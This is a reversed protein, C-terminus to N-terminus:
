DILSKKVKGTSHGTCIHRGDKDIDIYNISTDFDMMGVEHMDYVVEGTLM